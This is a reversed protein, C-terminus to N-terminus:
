CWKRTWCGDHRIFGGNSRVIMISCATKTTASTTVVNLIRFASGGITCGAIGGGHITLILFVIVIIIKICRKNM